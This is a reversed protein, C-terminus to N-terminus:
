GAEGKMHQILKDAVAGSPVNYNGGEIALKLQQVKEMRVDQGSNVTSAASAMQTATSSLRTQDAGQPGPTAKTKEGAGAGATQTRLNVPESSVGTAVQQRQGIDNTYM